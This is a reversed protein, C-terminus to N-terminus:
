KALFAIVQLDDQEMATVHGDCFLVHFVDQHRAVPYHAQADENNFPVFVGGDDGSCGPTNDHEWALMVKSTGNGSSVSALKMGQPGGIIKSLAYSVQYTAGYTPSGHKLDVGDPCLFINKNVEVFPALLFHHPDFDPLAPDTPSVRADYPAWWIDNPGTSLYPPRTQTCYLDAGNMWPAPCLRYRPLVTKADHFAHLAIGIQKMNAACTARRAAGRASQVAPLLLALLMSLIAIVVILELLTFARRRM